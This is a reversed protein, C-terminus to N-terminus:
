EYLRVSVEGSSLTRVGGDALRVMLGGDDDIGLVTAAGPFAKAPSVVRQGILCSRRRYEELVSPYDERLGAYFENLFGAALRGRGTPSWGDCVAGAITQLESPFGGAPPFVNFGVGCVAYDLRGTEFNVSSETLIGCVKRGNRYLDNVWKIEVDLDFVTKVARAAAVAAVTTIRGGESASMPPRLLVSLYLGTGSPSFFTRGLRGRGQTQRDAILVYGEGEGEEALAKVAANTSPCEEAVTIRCPCDASLFGSIFQATFIENSEM